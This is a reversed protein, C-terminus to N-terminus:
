QLAKPESAGKRNEGHQPPTWKKAQPNGMTKKGWRTKLPVFRLRRDGRFNSNARAQPKAVKQPKGRPPSSRGGARQITQPNALAKYRKQQLIRGNNNKHEKRFPTRAGVGKQNKLPDWLGTFKGRQV